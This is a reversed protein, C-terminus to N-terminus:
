ESRVRPLYVNKISQLEKVVHGMDMREKPTENSCMVGLNVIGTLADCLKAKAEANVLVENINGDGDELRVPVLLTRDIIEMVRDTLLATKAFEHLNLGDTFMTDTPRRGTFMELLMIGYSYIDGNASVDSGMGY